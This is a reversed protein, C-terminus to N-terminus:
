RGSTKSEARDILLSSHFASAQFRESELAFWLELKNAPLSLFYKTADHSTTANLGVAGQTVECMPSADTLFAALV